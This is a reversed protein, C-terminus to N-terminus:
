ISAKWYLWRKTGYNQWIKGGTILEIDHALTDGVIGTIGQPGQTGQIGTIGQSGQAGAPGQPGTPGAIEDVVRSKILSGSSLTNVIPM